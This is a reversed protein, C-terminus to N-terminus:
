KKVKSCCNQAKERYIPLHHVEFQFPCKKLWKKLVGNEIYPETAWDRIKIEHLTYAFEYEKKANVMRNLSEKKTRFYGFRWSCLRIEM